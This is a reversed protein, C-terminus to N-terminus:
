GPRLITTTTLRVPWTLWFPEVVSMIPLPLSLPPLSSLSLSLSLSLSPLLSFHASPCTFTLHPIPYMMFLEVNWQHFRLMSSLRVIGM